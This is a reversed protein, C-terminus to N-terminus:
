AIAAERQGQLLTQARDREQLLEEFAPIRDDREILTPRSGIREILRQYLAWVSEAIPMDHSDILLSSSGPDTTHGALHIETILQAPIADLYANASFGLNHASIHVNNVDLLLQCGTKKSLEVLFDIETWEHGELTLYHTPSEIAICRGLAEQTCHIN